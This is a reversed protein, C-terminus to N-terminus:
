LETEYCKCQGSLLKIGEDRCDIICYQLHSHFLSFYILRVIKIGAFHRIKCVVGCAQSLKRCVSSIQLKWYLKNDIVVGFHKISDTQQIRVDNMSIEFNCYQSRTATLIMYATKNYNISLKNSRMWTNVKDLENQVNLQLMKIYKHSLHLSTDNTFHTTQFSSACPLDNVYILFLLRGMVVGQPVGCKITRFSSSYNNVKTCQKRNTLYFEFFSNQKGRIGYYMLKCLLMKHGVTDFAKSLDLFVACTTKGEDMNELFSEYIASVALETSANNNFGYQFNTILKNKILFNSVRAYIIKEFIKSITPLISIPRYHSPTSPSSCKPVPVIHSIKLSDPYKGCEMNKNFLKALIPAINGKVLKLFKTSIGDIGSSSTNRLNTICAIVEEACTGDLFFSQSISKMFTTFSTNTPYIGNGISVGISSFYENLKNSKSIPSSTQTGGNLKLSNIDSFQKQHTSHL